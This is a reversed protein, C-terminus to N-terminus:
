INDIIESYNLGTYQWDDPLNHKKYNYMTYNWHNKFDKQNRIIHDHFSKQWAFKPIDHDKGYKKIIKKRTAIVFKDMKIQWPKRKERCRLHCHTNEGENLIPVYGMIKNVNQSFNRKLFHLIKSYNEIENDPKILIHFHEYNLCFAFLKFKKMDKCLKLEELWLECFLEEKFFNRRNAVDCTIFYNYDGYIRKQSNRHM